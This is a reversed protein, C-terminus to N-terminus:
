GRLKRAEVEHHLNDLAEDILSLAHEPPPAHRIQTVLAPSNAMLLGLRAYDQAARLEGILSRMESTTQMTDATHQAAKKLAEERLVQDAGPWLWWRLSKRDEQQQEYLRWVVRRTRQDRNELLRDLQCLADDNAVLRGYFALAEELCEQASRIHRNKWWNVAIGGVTSGGVAGAITCVMTPVGMLTGGTIGDIAVGVKAGAAGGVAIGVGKFAIELGGDALAHEWHKGQRVLKVQRYVTFAVLTIPIPGDLADSLFDGSLLSDYAEAADRSAQNAAEAASFSDSLTQDADAHTLGSLPVVNDAGITGTADTPVYYTVDPKLLAEQNATYVSAHTKINVAQGDVLADWVSQNATSAPIVVHGQVALADFAEQEGVYGVLRNYIAPNQIASTNDSFWSMFGAYDATVSPDVTGPVRASASSIASMVSPDIAGAAAVEAESFAVFDMYQHLAEAASGAAVVGSGQLVERKVTAGTQFDRPVLAQRRLSSVRALRAGTLAAIFSALIVVSAAIVQM